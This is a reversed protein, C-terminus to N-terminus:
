KYQISYTVNSTVTGPTAGGAPTIYEVLYPLVASGSSTDVMTTNTVQSSNGVQIVDQSASSGDRLQLSVNTATGGMNNLLGSALDVSTGAEFFASATQLTGACNSLAMNFATTGTTDNAAALTNASVTPLIVTADAGQGDISVDCTTATLEGNFTITGTSAANAIGVQGFLAVATASVLITKKMM